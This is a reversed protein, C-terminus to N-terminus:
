PTGLLQNGIATAIEHHPKFIRKQGNSGAVKHDTSPVVRIFSVAQPSLHKEAFSTNAM